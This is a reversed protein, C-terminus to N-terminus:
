WARLALTTSCRLNTPAYAVWRLGFLKTQFDDPGTALMALPQVQIEGVHPSITQVRGVHFWAPSNSFMAALALVFGLVIILNATSVGSRQMIMEERFPAAARRGSPQAGSGM